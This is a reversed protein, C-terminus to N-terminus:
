NRVGQRSTAQQCHRRTGLVARAQTSPHGKLTTNQMMQSRSLIKLPLLLAVAEQRRPINMLKGIRIQNEFKLVRELKALCSAQVRTIADIGGLTVKVDLGHLELINITYADKGVHVYRV